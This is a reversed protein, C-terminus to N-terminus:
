WPRNDLDSNWSPWTGNFALPLQEHHQYEQRWMWLTTFMEVQVCAVVDTEPAGELELGRGGPRTFRLGRCGTGPAAIAAFGAAAALPVHLPTREVTQRKAVAGKSGHGPGRESAWSGAEAARAFGAPAARRRPRQSAGARTARGRRGCASVESLTPFELWTLRRLVPARWNM